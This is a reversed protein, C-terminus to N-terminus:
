EAIRVKAAIPGIIAQNHYTPLVTPAPQEM